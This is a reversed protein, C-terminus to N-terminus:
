RAEPFRVGALAALLDAHDSNAATPNRCDLVILEITGPEVGPREMTGQFRGFLCRLTRGRTDFTHIEVPGVPAQVTRPRISQLDMREAIKDPKRRNVVADCPADAGAREREDIRRTRAGYQEPGGFWVRAMGTQWVYEDVAWDRDRYHRSAM